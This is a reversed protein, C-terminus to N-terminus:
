PKCSPRRPALSRQAGAAICGLASTRSSPTDPTIFPPPLPGEAALLPHALRLARVWRLPAAIPTRQMLTRTACRRLLPWLRRWPFTRWPWRAWGWRRWSDLGGGLGPQHSGIGSCAVGDRGRRERYRRQAEEHSACGRRHAHLHEPARHSRQPLEQAQQWPAPLDRSYLGDYGAAAGTPWTYMVACIGVRVCVCVDERDRERVDLARPRPAAPGVNM